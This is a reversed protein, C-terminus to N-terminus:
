CAWAERRGRAAEFVCTGQGPTFYRREDFVQYNPLERKAYTAIVEGRACCAPRTTASSCAVQPHAQRWGSPHGVVVALDKLGALERAVTKVADDCAAIFAPRLFLDEAAYGCISLEPTLVLRAGDCRLGAPPMSSKKPM